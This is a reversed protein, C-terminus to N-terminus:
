AHDDLFETKTTAQEWCHDFLQQGWAQATESEDIVETRADYRGDLTPLSLLLCDDCVALAFSVDLVRFETRDYQDFEDLTPARELAQEAVAWDVILRADDEDPMSSDYDKVFIPSIVDVGTSRGVRRAVEEVVGHPSTEPAEFIEADALEVLRTRFRRPLVSTDHTEWYDTGSLLVDAQERQQLLDAVLWGSGTAQWGNKTSRVLGRRELTKLANYVASDSATVKALVDETSADSRAVARLTESRVASDLVFQVHPRGSGM